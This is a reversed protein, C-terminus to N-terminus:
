HYDVIELITVATVRAWDLGGDPVTPPPVDSPEFVLRKGDPLRLALQGLRDHHLAHCDGPLHRFADLTPAADLHLMRKMVAKAVASGHARTLSADSEVLTKLKASAFSIEM